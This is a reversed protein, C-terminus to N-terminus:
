TRYHPVHFDFFDGISNGLQRRILEGAKVANSAPRVLWASSSSVVADLSPRRAPRANASNFFRAFSGHTFGDDGSFTGGSRSVRGFIGALRRAIRADRTDHSM